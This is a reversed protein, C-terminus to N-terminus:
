PPVAPQHRAFTLGLSYPSSQSIVLCVSIPIKERNFNGYEELTLFFRSNFFGKHKVLTLLVESLNVKNLVATLQMSKVFIETMVNKCM